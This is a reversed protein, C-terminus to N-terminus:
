VPFATWAPRADAVIEALPRQCYYVHCIKAVRESTDTIGKLLKVAPMELDPEIRISSALVPSIKTAAFREYYSHADYTLARRNKGDGINYNLYGTLPGSLFSFGAIEVVQQFQISCYEGLRLQIVPVAYGTREFLLRAGNTDAQSEAFRLARIEEKFLFTTQTRRCTKGSMCDQIVPILKEVYIKTIHNTVHVVDVLHANVDNMESIERAVNIFPIDLEGAVLQAAESFRDSLYNVDKRYLSLFLPTAGRRLCLEASYWITWHLDDDTTSGLTRYGSTFIELIVFDYKTKDLADSLLFAADVPQIGGIACVDIRLDTTQKAWEQLKHAYSDKGATVSFGFILIEM